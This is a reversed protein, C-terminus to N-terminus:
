GGRLRPTGRGMKPVPTLARRSGRDPLDDDRQKCRHSNPLSLRVHVPRVAGHDPKTPIGAARGDADGCKRLHQRVRSVYIHRVRVAQTGLIDATPHDFGRSNCPLRTTSWQRRRVVSRPVGSAHLADARLQHIRTPLDGYRRRRSRKRSHGFATWVHMARNGVNAVYYSSRHARHDTDPSEHHDDHHGHDSNIDGEAEDDCRLLWMRTGGDRGVSDSGIRCTAEIHARVGGPGSIVSGAYGPDPAVDRQHWCRKCWGGRDPFKM